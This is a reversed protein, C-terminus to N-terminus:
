QLDQFLTLAIVYGHGYPFYRNEDHEQQTRDQWEILMEMNVDRGQSYQSHHCGDPELICINQGDRVVELLKQYTPHARYLKQLVPIYIRKRAQVVDLQESEFWAYLPIARGNPRRVPETHKKLAEHWKDWAENPEGHTEAPWSWNKTSQKTVNQWVKHAQWYNEFLCGNDTKIRFPSLDNWPSAGRSWAAVNLYETDTPYPVGRGVSRIRISGPEVSGRKNM